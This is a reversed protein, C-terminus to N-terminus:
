PRVRKIEVAFMKALEAFFDPRSLTSPEEVSLDNPMFYDASERFKPKEPVLWLVFYAQFTMMYASRAGFIKEFSISCAWMLFENVRLPFDIIDHPDSSAHRLWDYGTVFNDAVFEHINPSKGATRGLECLVHYAPMVLLHISIPDDRVFWM